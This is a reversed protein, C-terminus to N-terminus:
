APALTLATPWSAGGHVSGAELDASIIMPVKALSQLRQIKEPPTENGVYLNGVIGKSISEEIDPMFIRSAILQGLKEDLTMNALTKKVWESPPATITHIM